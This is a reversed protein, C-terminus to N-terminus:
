IYSRQTPTDRFRCRQQDCLRPVWGMQWTLEIRDIKEITKLMPVGARTGDLAKRYMQTVKANQRVNPSERGPIKFARVGIAALTPVDCLACDTGGDLFAVERRVEGGPTIVEYGSRCGLGVGSGNPDDWITCRGCMLGSGTQVQVEIDVGELSCLATVEDLTIQHPTVIRSVSFRETLWRAYTVTTVGMNGAAILPVTIEGRQLVDLLGVNAVIVRDVGSSVAARVHSLYEQHLEVPLHPANASFNVTLDNRHAEKIISRLLAPSTIQTPQDSRTVAYANYTFTALEDSALGLYIEDAGAAIQLDLMELSRVPVNLAVDGTLPASPAAEDAGAMPTTCPPAQVPATM